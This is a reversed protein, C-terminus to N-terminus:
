QGKGIKDLITWLYNVILDAMIALTLGILTNKLIRKASAIGEENVGVMVLRMGAWVISAMAITAIVALIDGNIGQFVSDVVSASTGTTTSPFVNMITQWMQSIGAGKGTASLAAASARPVLLGSLFALLTM